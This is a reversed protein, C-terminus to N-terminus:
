ASILGLRKIENWVFARGKGSKLFKERAMAEQKSTYHESFAIVWPRFKVTYGKHSLQNHSLFRAELNSTYGIYIKNFKKSYLVYVKFMTELITTTRNLTLYFLTTQLQLCGKTTAPAPNSGVDAEPPYSGWDKLKM